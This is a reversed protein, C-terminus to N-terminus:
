SYYLRGHSESRDSNLTLLFITLSSSFVLSCGILIYIKLPTILTLRNTFRTVLYRTTYAYYNLESESSGSM